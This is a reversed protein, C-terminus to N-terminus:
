EIEKEKTKKCKIYIKRGIQLGYFLIVLTAAMCGLGIVQKGSNSELFISKANNQNIKFNSFFSMRQNCLDGEWWFKCECLTGNDQDYCYGNSGCKNEV